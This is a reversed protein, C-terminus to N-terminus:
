AADPEARLQPAVSWAVEREFARASRLLKAEEFPAAMPQLSLPLGSTDSGCSVARAPPGARGAPTRFETKLLGHESPRRCRVAANGHGSATSNVMRFLEDDGRSGPCGLEEGVQTNRQDDLPLNKEPKLWRTADGREKRFSKGDVDSLAVVARTGISKGGHIPCGSAHLDRKVSM